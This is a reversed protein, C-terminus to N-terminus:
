MWDHKKSMRTSRILELVKARNKAKREEEKKMEEPSMRTPRRGSGNGNGPNAPPRATPAEGLYQAFKTKNFLTAPRLYKSMTDDNKWDKVKSDIVKILDEKKITDERLRAKILELNAALPKFSRFAVRNLHELIEKAETSSVAKQKEQFKHQCNPCTIVKERM